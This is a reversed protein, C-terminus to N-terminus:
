LSRSLASVEVRSKAVNKAVHDGSRQYRLMIEIATWGAPRSHYRRAREMLALGRM